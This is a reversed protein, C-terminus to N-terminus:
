TLLEDQASRVSRRLVETMEELEDETSALPPLFLVNNGIPRIIMGREEAQRRVVHGAEREYPFPTGDRDQVLELACMFGAQRYEGVVPEDELPQLGERITMAKAPLDPMVSTQLEELSAIGAACALANGTYSHGHFLAKREGVEGLFEEYIFEQAVAASLPLYGGTIGKGLTMIDPSVHEHECAFLTETRGFGTAVEDVLFLVDYETCLERLGTLFGAPPVIMGGAGQVPEVMVGALEDRHNRLKDEVQTLCEDLVTQPDSTGPWRYPHPFPVQVPEPLMGEFPWHFTEDPVVSMPGFTDGHYGGEFTLFRQRGTPEGAQNAFYQIAMKMGIEVANAGSDAYFVHELGDPTVETLREAFEVAKVNSSGLLTSHAIRDLQDRIASDIKENQHGHVNLWISSVGDYYRNGDTDILFVGEGREIVLPDDAAYSQMQTFPHWVHEVDRRSWDPQEEASM